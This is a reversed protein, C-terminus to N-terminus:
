YNLKLSVFINRGPGNIGSAFVRYQTDFINDVGGQITIFKQLQYSLRCNATFWAPMGLPTAYQENDEGNLYYDSIRKWGNFNIFFDSTFKKFRYSAQAKAYFPSIHDLPYDTSDTKIRGYTYNIAFSLILNETIASKINSSFGFLYARGTNQNALVQSKTGDYMISDQGNYQFQNTAIADFFDTYYISNEWRTKNNMFSAVGIEYNITKEPKLNNNPVIIQGPASEFVKSLDDVNPVRFGTSIVFSLKTNENPANILGVSVSYVLNQQKVSSYPFKFFTTDNFTSQLNSFGIRAGDALTTNSNIFYTHSVYAAANLM